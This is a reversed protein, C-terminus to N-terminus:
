HLQLKTHRKHMLQTETIITNISTRGDTLLKLFDEILKKRETDEQKICETILFNGVDKILISLNIAVAPTEFIKENDNYRAVVNIASICNDYFKPYYFSKFDDIDNNIKKLILLLRGLLQLKVRIIDHQHQAKYKACLKNAYM